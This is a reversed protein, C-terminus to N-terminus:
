SLEKLTYLKDLQVPCKCSKLQGAAQCLEELIENGLSDEEAASGSHEETGVKVLQYRRLKKCASRITKIRHHDAEDKQDKADNLFCFVGGLLLISFILGVGRMVVAKDVAKGLM